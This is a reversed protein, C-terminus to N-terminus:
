YKAAEEKSVFHLIDEEKFGGAKVKIMVRELAVKM